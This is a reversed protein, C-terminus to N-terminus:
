VPWVIVPLGDLVESAVPIQGTAQAEALAAIAALWVADRWAIFATAEAAWLPVTSAFYSACHAASNYNRAQAVAEVHANIAATIRAQYEALAAAQKEEATIVQSFDITAM